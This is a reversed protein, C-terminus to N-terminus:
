SRGSLCGMRIPNSRTASRCARSTRISCDSTNSAPATIMPKNPSDDDAEGTGVPLANVEIGSIDLQDSIVKTISIEYVDGDADPYNSAGWSVSLLGFVFVLGALRMLLFSRM